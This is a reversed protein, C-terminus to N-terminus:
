LEVAEIFDSIIKEATFKKSKGIASKKFNEHIEKNQLYYSAREAAEEMTEVLFGNQNNNIIDKPGKTNYSIVPLGCAMAELVVCGFTDFRSPLIFIDASSYIKPLDAHNVWGLFDAEPLKEKLEAEAPGTGAIVIRIDKIKKQVKRFIEPLEFVGKEKSIRGAYLITPVKREEIMYFSNDINAAQREKVSYPRFMEHVWHATVFVKDEDFGMEKSTLWKKQDTNLVFLNDFAGYYARLYRRTRSIEHVDFGLVDKAFTIWDTHIYFHAPVTFAHKLYLAAAGMIGETSCIIRDYEGEQFISHIKLFNPIRIPQQKYFPLVFEMEPKIVILNDDAKVTNSCVLLDIPLDRKKIESHMAQLSMSVGNKDEYTDTMWLMRKPHKYKGTKEAFDNYLPRLHTLSKASTFNAALIILSTLMPFSLGDLFKPVDPTTMNKDKRGGKGSYSRMDSPLELFSIINDLSTNEFKKEFDIEDLKKTLRSFLVKNLQDSISTIHKQFIDITDSNIEKRAEAIKVASDFVPKYAKPVFLKRFNSPIKGNFSKHFVDIFSITVKHRQIESIANSVVFALVKDITSGKHLLMRTLGPDKFNLCVQNFYDLFAVTLKETNQDSGYVATNGKKIAELALKSLPEKKRREKLNPIHLYCGSQGAFIGMHSDSGGTFSKKYPNNCYESIDIKFKAALRDIDEKKLGELWSRVLLNQWTNRQGNIIEFREFLLATKMFFNFPPIGDSKYQFLPHAWVTPIDNKKAYKLFKYLDEKLDFLVKEQEQDFGYALVHIGIGYDPAICSFEAGILMDTGKKIMEFNSRANNHNTVTFVDCGNTKLTTILDETKLWTEPVNLIRGLLEDPVNSNHDHCHLDIKLIEEKPFKGSESKLFKQLETRLETQFNTKKKM